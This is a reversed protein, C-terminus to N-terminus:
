FYRAVGECVDCFVIRSRERVGRAGGKRQDQSASAADDAAMSALQPTWPAGACLMVAPLVSQWHLESTASVASAGGGRHSPLEVDLQIPDHAQQTSLVLVANRRREPSSLRTKCLGNELVDNQRPRCLARVYASSATVAYTLRVCRYDFCKGRIVMCLISFPLRM